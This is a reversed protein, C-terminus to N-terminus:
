NLSLKKIVPKQLVSFLFTFALSLVFIIMCYVVFGFQNPSIPCINIGLCHSFFFLLSNNGIYKLWAYFVSEQFPILRMVIVTSISFLIAVMCQGKPYLTLFFLGFLVLYRINAYQKLVNIKSAIITGVPFCIVSNYWHLGIMSARVVVAYILIILTLIYVPQKVSKISFSFFIFLYLFVIVIFFWIPEGQPTSLLLFNFVDYLSAPYSLAGGGISFGM